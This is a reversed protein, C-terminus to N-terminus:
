KSLIPDQLNRTALAISLDQAADACLRLGLM